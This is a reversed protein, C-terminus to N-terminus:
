WNSEDRHQSRAPPLVALFLAIIVGVILGSIGGSVSGIIVSVAGALAVVLAIWPRESYYNRIAKGGLRGAEARAEAGELEIEVDKRKTM